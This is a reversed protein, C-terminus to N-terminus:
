YEYGSNVNDTQSEYPIPGKGGCKKEFCCKEKVHPQHQCCCFNSCCNKNCKNNCVCCCGCGGSGHGGFRSDESM